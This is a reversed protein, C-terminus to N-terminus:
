RALFIIFIEVVMDLFATKNKISTYFKPLLVQETFVPSFHDTCKKVSSYFNLLYNGNKKQNCLQFYKNLYDNFVSDFYSPKGENM